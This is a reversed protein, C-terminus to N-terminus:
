TTVTREAKRELQTEQLTLSNTQEIMTHVDFSKAYRELAWRVINLKESRPMKMGPFYAMDPDDERGLFDPPHLLLSPATGTIRCLRFANQLYAKATWKSLSALYIFYSFHIPTRSIPMVTVPIEWLSFSDIQRRFPQNPNRMASFGGYLKKAKEKQEGKLKTRALFVARAIPAMSTPFVSADYVYNLQGLVRLVEDPCSFGPGRFGLPRHGLTSEIARHTDAIERYIEDQDMTHMWPLHNMSHNSYEYSRLQQFAELAQVDSENQLDRGVVFVTLPLDLEGLVTVMRQAAVPLYSSASQWDARGAARLYAWKNDFDVSLSAIATRELNRERGTKRNM